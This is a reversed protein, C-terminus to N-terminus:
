DDQKIATQPAEITVPTKYEYTTTRIFDNGRINSQAVTKLLMGTESDIWMTNVGAIDQFSYMSVDRDGMKERRLLQPRGKANFDTMSLNPNIGGFDGFPFNSEVWEGGSQIWSKDGIGILEGESGSMRYKNPAAFRLIVKDKPATSVSTESTWFPATKLRMIAGVIDKAPDEGNTFPFTNVPREDLTIVRPPEPPVQETSMRSCASGLLLVALVLWCNRRIMVLTM